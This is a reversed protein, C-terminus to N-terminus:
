KLAFKLVIKLLIVQANTPSYFVIVFSNTCSCRGTKWVVAASSCLIGWPNCTFMFKTVKNVFVQFLDNQRVWYM